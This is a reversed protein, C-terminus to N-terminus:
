RESGYLVLASWAGLRRGNSHLVNRQLTALAEEAAMGSSVYRHFGVILDRTATGDAGPLTGLVAPVGATLFARALSLTGEGRTRGGNEVEDLVVLHARSSPQAAIERGLVAGSYRHGPEDALVVRSLLPYAQNSVTRASLHVISRDSVDAFVRDRTAAAGTFLTPSEYVAAVARATADARGDPGGVVLVTARGGSTVLSSSAIAVRASASQATSLTFDEVLFRQTTADWLAALAVEHYPADPVVTLRRIGRLHSRTSRLIENFLDASADPRIAEHRIEAQQRAVLQQASRRTLPRTVVSILDHRIVWVALENEFQNLMLIAEGPAIAEQIEGLTRVDPPLTPDAVQRRAREALALARPYDKKKIALHVATEFLQWSEDLMSVRGNGAVSSREEDFATIGRTLATEAEDLRGWVINAKAIRLEIQALRLRDRRRLVIDAARTAAAVAQEPDTSRLLDSEVILIPMEAYQRLGPDKVTQLNSRALALAQRADSMRGLRVFLAARQSLSEAIPGPNGWARASEIVGDQFTLATDPDQRAIAAAAGNLVQYRLRPSRTASLASLAAERHRWATEEDGLYGHLSSLLSHAGAAQEVDGMQQFASLTDEYHAQADGLRGQGFAVLGQFWTCRAAAYLYGRTRAMTLGADLRARAEDPSGTIYALAGLEIAARVALPSHTATLDPLATTFATKASGIQDDAFARSGIEYRQHARALARLAGQGQAEARDIATVVDPYLADGTVRAFADAMVRLRDIEQSGDGGAEVAASWKPLMQTEIFNRAETTQTRVAEDAVSADISGKLKAEVSNWAAAATPKALTDLQARAERAWPSVKDRALYDAWAAEAQDKLSLATLARARNFWAEHLSPDLRRARDASALARPLDDPRLGLRARELQVAAVDSLYRANDPRERSAAILSDAADDHRGALLLSVGLDHLDSPTQRQGFSERIRTAILLIRDGTAIQGDASGASPGNLSAQSSGETLRGLFTREGDLDARLSVSASDRDLWSRLTPPLAVVTLVAAVAALAGILSRRTARSAEAEIDIQPIGASVEALTRTVGAVVAICIPCLALHSEVGAREVLSLHRDIYAALIESEPCRTPRDVM